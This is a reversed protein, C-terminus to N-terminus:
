LVSRILNKTYESIPNNFIEDNINEEVVNGNKLVIIKDAISRIVKMDHSIFIYSLSLKKQLENLLNIIQNQVTIDLASTPEDLIM